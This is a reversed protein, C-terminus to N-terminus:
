GLSELGDYHFGGAPTDRAVLGFDLDRYLEGDIASTRLRRCYAPNTDIDPPLPSVPADQTLAPSRPLPMIVVFLAIAGAIRQWWQDAKGV